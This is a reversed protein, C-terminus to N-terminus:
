RRTLGILENDFETIPEPQTNFIGLIKKDPIDWYIKIRSCLPKINRRTCFIEIKLICGFIKGHKHIVDPLNHLRYSKVFLPHVLNRDRIRRTPPTYIISLKFKELKIIVRGKEEGV